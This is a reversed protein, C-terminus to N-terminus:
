SAATRGTLGSKRTDQLMKAPQFTPQASLADIRQLQSLTRNRVPENKSSSPSLSLAGIVRSLIMTNLGFASPKHLM